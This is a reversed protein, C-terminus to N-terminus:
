SNKPWEATKSRQRLAANVTRLASIAWAVLGFLAARASIRLARELAIYNQSMNGFPLHLRNPVLTAHVSCLRIYGPSFAKTPTKVGGGVRRLTTATQVTYLSRSFLPLSIPTRSISIYSFFSLYSSGTCSSYPFTSVITRFTMSKAATADPSGFLQITIEQLLMPSTSSAEEVCSPKFLSLCVIIYLNMCRSSM